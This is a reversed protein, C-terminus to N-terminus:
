IKLRKIKQEKKKKKSEQEQEKNKLLKQKYFFTEFCHLNLRPPLGYISFCFRVLIVILFKVRSFNKIWNSWNFTFNYM